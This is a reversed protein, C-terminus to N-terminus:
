RQTERRRGHDNVQVELSTGGARSCMVVREPRDRDLRFKLRMSCSGPKLCPVSAQLSSHVCADRRPMVSTSTDVLCELEGM